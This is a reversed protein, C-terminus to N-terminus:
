TECLTGKRLAGALRVARQFLPIAAVDDHRIEQVRYGLSYAQLKM